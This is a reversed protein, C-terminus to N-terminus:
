ALQYFVRELFIIIVFILITKFFPIRPPNEPIIKDLVYHHFMVLILFIDHTIKERGKDMEM